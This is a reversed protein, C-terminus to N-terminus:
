FRWSGFDLKCGPIYRGRSHRYRSYDLGFHSIMFDEELNTRIQIHTTTYIMVMVITIFSDSILMIYFLSSFFEAMYGPHIIYIYPGAQILRHSPFVGISNTYFKDLTLAAWSHLIGCLTLGMLLLSSMIIKNELISADSSSFISMWNLIFRIEQYTLFSNKIISTYYSESRHAIQGYKILFVEHAAGPNGQVIELMLRGLVVIVIPAWVFLNEM